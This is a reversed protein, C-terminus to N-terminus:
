TRIKRQNRGRLQSILILILSCWSGSTEKDLGLKGAYNLIFQGLVCIIWVTFFAKCMNLGLSHVPTIKKVYDEYQKQKQQSSHNDSM